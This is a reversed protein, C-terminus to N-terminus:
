WQSQSSRQFDQRQRTKLDDDEDDQEEESSPRSRKKGGGGRTKKPAEPTPEFSSESDAQSLFPQSMLPIDVDGVDEEEDEEEDYSAIRRVGRTAV